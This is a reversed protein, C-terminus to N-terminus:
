FRTLEPFNLWVEFALEFLIWFIKFREREPETEYLFVFAFAICMAKTNKKSKKVIFPFLILIKINKIEAGYFKTKLESHTYSRYFPLLNSDLNWTIHSNNKYPKKTGSKKNIIFFIFVNRFNNSKGTVSNPVM